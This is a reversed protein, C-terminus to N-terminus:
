IRKGKLRMNLRYFYDGFTKPKPCEELPEWGIDLGCYQKAATMKFGLDCNVAFTTNLARCGDCTRKM